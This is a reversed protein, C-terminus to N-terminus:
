IYDAVISPPTHHSPLYKEYLLLSCRLSQAEDTLLEQRPYQKCPQMAIILILFRLPHSTPFPSTFSFHSTYAVFNAKVEVSWGPSTEPGGARQPLMTYNDVVEISPQKTKSVLLGSNSGPLPQSEVKQV